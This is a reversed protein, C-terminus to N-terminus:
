RAKEIKIERNDKGLAFSLPSMLKELVEWSRLALRKLKKFSLALSTKLANM